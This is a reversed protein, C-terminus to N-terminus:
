SSLARTQHRVKHQLTTNLHCSCIACPHSLRSSSSCVLWGLITLVPSLVWSTEINTHALQEWIISSTAAAAAAPSLRPVQCLIRDSSRIHRMNSLVVNWVEQIKGSKLSFSWPCWHWDAMSIMVAVFSVNCFKGAYIKWCQQWCSYWHHCVQITALPLQKSPLHPYTYM